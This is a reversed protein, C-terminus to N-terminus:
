RFEKPAICVLIFDSVLAHGSRLYFDALVYHVVGQAAHVSCQSYM